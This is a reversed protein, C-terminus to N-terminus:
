YLFAITRIKRPCATARGSLVAIKNKLYKRVSVQREGKLRAELVSILTELGENMKKENIRIKPSM